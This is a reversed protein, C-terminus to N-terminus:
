ASERIWLSHDKRERYRGWADLAEGTAVSLVIFALTAVDWRASSTHGPTASRLNEVACEGCISSSYNRGPRRYNGGGYRSGRYVPRRRLCDRCTGPYPTQRRSTM